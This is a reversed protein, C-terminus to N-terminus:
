QLKKYFTFELNELILIYIFEAANHWQVLRM